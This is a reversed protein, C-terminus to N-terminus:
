RRVENQLYMKRKGCKKAVITLNNEAWVPIMMQKKQDQGPCAFNLLHLDRTGAVVRSGAGARVCGDPAALHQALM